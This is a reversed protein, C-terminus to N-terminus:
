PALIPSVLLMFSWFIRLIVMILFLYSDVFIIPLTVLSICHGVLLYIFKHGSPSLCDDFCQSKGWKKGKTLPPMAQQDNDLKKGHCSLSRVYHKEKKPEIGILADDVMERPKERALAFLADTGDNDDNESNCRKIEDRHWQLCAKMFRTLLSLSGFFDCPHM